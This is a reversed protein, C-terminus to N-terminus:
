SVFINSKLICFPRGGIDNSCCNIGFIRGNPSVCVVCSNITSDATALWWYCDLKYKDFIERNSSYFDFTPLGIKSHMKGYDKLGDLSTLDTEFELINESGVIEAIKPLVEKNLKKLLESKAFNNSNDDVKSKFVIDKMVAVVKGDNDSFKIFEMDGIKFTDGIEVEGLTKSPIDLMKKLKAVQKENLEVTLNDIKIKM